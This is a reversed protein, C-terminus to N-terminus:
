SVLWSGFNEVSLLLLSFIALLLLLLPQPCLYVIGSRDAAAAAPLLFCM